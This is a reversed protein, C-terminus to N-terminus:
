RRFAFFERIPFPAPRTPGPKRETKKASRRQQKVRRAPAEAAAVPAAASSPPARLLPAGHQVSATKQEPSPKADELLQVPPIQAPSAAAAESAAAAPASAPAAATEGAKPTAGTKSDAAIDPATAPAQRPPEAGAERRDIEAAPNEAARVAAQRYPSERVAPKSEPTKEGQVFIAMAAAGGVLATLAITARHWFRTTAAMQRGSDRRALDAHDLPAFLAPELGSRPRKRSRAAFTGSKLPEYRHCNM